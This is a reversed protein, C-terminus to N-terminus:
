LRGQKDERAAGSMVIVTIVAAATGTRLEYLPPTRPSSCYLRQDAKEKKKKKKLLRM